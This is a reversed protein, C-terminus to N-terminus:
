PRLEGGLPGLVRPDDLDPLVIPVVGSAEGGRRQPLDIEAGFKLVRVREHLPTRSGRGGGRAVVVAGLLARLLENRQHADRTEWVEAGTGPVPLAPRRGREARLEARAAEVAAKRSRLEDAYDREELDAAKVTTLLAALEAGAAAVAAEARELGRGDTASVRLRELEALAIGEVHADLLATTIAAPAPCREGSHNVPCVYVLRKTNARTMVHGCGACRVLRALLAPGDDVRRPARPRSALAHQVDDFLEPTVIREHAERNVHKGVRLEGLYVRNRLMARVGQPTMGLRRALDVVTARGDRIDEFARRVEDAREDPVLHRSLPDDKVKPYRRYGRPTQRRQWIGLATAGERLGEFRERHKDLEREDVAALINRLMRGDSDRGDINERAWIMRGGAAEVRDWLALTLGLNRAMRSSYGNVVGAYDGREVGEIAQRMIARDPDDSKGNLDPPLLEIRIEKRTRAAEADAWAYIFRDQEELAHFAEDDQKREGMHSVRRYGAYVEIKM